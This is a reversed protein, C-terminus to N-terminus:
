GNVRPNMLPFSDRVGPSKLVPFQRQIARLLWVAPSDMLIKTQPFMWLLKDVSDNPEFFNDGINDNNMDWGLYNSWYNGQGNESWEQTRNAVYKVQTQNHIFNNGSLINGESGATLHIGIEANAVVNNRLSNGVSNYIFFGKGDAGDVNRAESQRVGDIHNNELTSKTIFNLLIGYDESDVSVNETVTLLRSQMLAYGARTHRTENKSVTNSHSYMYHVGYRLDHLLNETLINHQSSIIYIGDRTHWVENGRVEAETANSLHIGNGRDTSRMTINGQIRNNVIKAGKNKDIWIGTTDGKMDNNIISVNDADKEVFIGANMATLDDGWNRISLSNILVDNASVRIVDHQGQADLTAGEEGILSVPQKLFFNGQYLGASLIFTTNVEAQDLLTQLNQDEHIRITTESFSVCSWLVVSILLFFSIFSPRKMYSDFM